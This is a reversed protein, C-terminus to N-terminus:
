KFANNERIWRDVDAHAADDEVMVKDLEQEAPDSPDPVSVSIGTTERVLNSVAAPQNTSLAATLLGIVLNTM